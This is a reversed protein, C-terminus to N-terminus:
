GEPLRLPINVRLKAKLPVVIKPLALELEKTLSVSLADSKIVARTKVPINIDIPIQGRIPVKVSGLKLVSSEVVVDLPISARVPVEAEIDIPDDMRVALRLDSPLVYKGTLEIPLEQDIDVDIPVVRDKIINQALRLAREVETSRRLRRYVLASFVIGGAVAGIAAAALFLWGNM